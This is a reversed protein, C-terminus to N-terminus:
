GCLTPTSPGTSDSYCNGDAADARNASHLAIGTALAVGVIVAIAVFKTRM